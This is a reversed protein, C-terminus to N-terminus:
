QIYTNYKTNRTHTISTHTTSTIYVLLEQIHSAQKENYTRRSIVHIQQSLVRCLGVYVYTHIYLLSYTHIYIYIYVYM